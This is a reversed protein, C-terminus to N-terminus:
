GISPPDEPVVLDGAEELPRVIVVDCQARKVVESAVTGLLRDAVSRDQRAGVVIVDASRDAAVTLLAKAPEGDVLMSAAITAGAKKAVGVAQAIAENAAARGLVQGFRLDGGLTAVNKADARRSMEAYACVIILDADEHKALWAARTVTPIALSSGDTGVVVTRYDKMTM